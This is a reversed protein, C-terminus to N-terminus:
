VKLSQSRRRGLHTRSKCNAPTSQWRNCHFRTGSGKEIDLVAERPILLSNDPASLNINVAVFMGPKLQYEPNPIEAKVRVTRDEPNMIPSIFDIEGSIRQQGASIIVPTGVAANSLETGSITFIAKVVDMKVITLIPNAGPGGAAAAYDGLDAGQNVVIGNIPSTITADALRKNALNVQESAQDFQAQAAAIDHEWARIKVLEQASLLNAEAQRVQSEAMTIQTNWDETDVVVRALALSAQAQNLQAEAASIDEQRAGEQVLSM